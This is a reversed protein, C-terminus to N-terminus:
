REQVLILIAIIGSTYAWLLPKLNPSAFYM